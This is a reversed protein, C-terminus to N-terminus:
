VTRGFRKEIEDKTVTFYVPRGHPCFKPISGCLIKEALAVMEAQPAVHGAKIAARCASSHMLWERAEFTVSERDETLADAIETVADAAGKLSLYTPIERVAVEREGLESVSFGLRDLIESNDLVAQKEDPMLSVVVPELLIQSDVSAHADRILEYLLREHAAHMDILVLLDRTEAVIYTRFLEGIVRLQGDTELSMQETDEAEAAGATVTDTQKAVEGPFIDLSAGPGYPTREKVEDLSDIRVLEDFLDRAPDRIQGGSLPRDAMIFPDPRYTGTSVSPAKEKVSATDPVDSVEPTEDGSVSLVPSVSGLTEVAERVARYVARTVARENTFRVETKAPHVNVDVSDLPVTVSIVFSPFKGQMIFGKYAEEAAAQIARNRIFRGNVSIHQLSRSARSQSPSAAFGSVTVNEESTVSIEKMSSAVERPYLDFIASYLGQGTTRVTLKGERVLRFSVDPESLAMHWILQECANGEAVDKKLFKMRAPTNYFIDSVMISTGNPTGCEELSIERGGEIVYRYGSFSDPTKTTLRVRSVAAIAALAEGRFGLTGIANLDDATSIKSTAHRMFAVRIDEKEFGRGNDTVSISSLGNGRLEIDIRDAGADLSNEVLEKVVSAPREVVEGASILERVRDDLVHVYGM